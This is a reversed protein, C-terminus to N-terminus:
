EPFIAWLGKWLGILGGATMGLGTVLGIISYYSSQASLLQALLDKQFVAWLTQMNLALLGLGMFLTGISLIFLLPSQKAAITRKYRAEVLILLREAEKWNLGGQECVKRVVDNRDHHKALEKIILTSLEENMDAM